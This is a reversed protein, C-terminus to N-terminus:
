TKHKLTKIREKSVFIDKLAHPLLEYKREYHGTKPSKSINKGWKQQQRKEKEYV